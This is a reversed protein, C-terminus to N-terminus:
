VITVKGIKLNIRSEGSRCEEGKGLRPQCHQNTSHHFQYVRLILSRTAERRHPNLDRRSWWYGSPFTRNKIGM